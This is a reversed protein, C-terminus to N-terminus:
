QQEWKWQNRKQLENSQFWNEDYTQKDLLHKQHAKRKEYKENQEFM